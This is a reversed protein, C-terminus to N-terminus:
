ALHYRSARKTGAHIAPAIKNKFSCSLHCVFLLLEDGMDGGPVLIKGLPVGVHDGHRIQHVIGGDAAAHGHLGIAVADPFQNVVAQVPAELFGAMFVYGHGHQDRLAQQEFLRLVHLAKSGFHGPDGLAAGLLQLLAQRHAGGAFGDEARHEGLPDLGPPVQGEFIVLPARHHTPFLGGTGEQARRFEPPLLAMGDVGRRFFRLLFGHLHEVDVAIKGLLLQGHRHEAALLGFLFLEGAGPGGVGDLGHHLVTLGQLSAGGVVEAGVERHGVVDLIQALFALEFVAMLGAPADGGAQDAGDDHGVAVLAAELERGGHGGVLHHQHGHRGM